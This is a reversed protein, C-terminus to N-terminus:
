YMNLRRIINSQFQSAQKIVALPFLRSLLDLQGKTYVLTSTHMIHSNGHTAHTGHSDWPFPFGMLIPIKMRM